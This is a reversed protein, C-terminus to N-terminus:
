PDACKRVSKKLIVIHLISVNIKRQVTCRDSLKLDDWGTIAESMVDLRMTADSMVDLRMTVDSM